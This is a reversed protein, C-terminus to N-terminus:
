SITAECYDIKTSCFPEIQSHIIVFFQLIYHVLIQYVRIIEFTTNNLKTAHDRLVFVSGLENYNSTITQVEHFQAM